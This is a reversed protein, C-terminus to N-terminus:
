LDFAPKPIFMIGATAYSPSYKGAEYDILAGDVLDLYQEGRKVAPIFAFSSGDASMPTTLLYRAENEIGAAKFHSEHYVIVEGNGDRFLEMNEYLLVQGNKDIVEEKRGEKVRYPIWSDPETSYPETSMTYRSAGGLWEFRVGENIRVYVFGQPELEILMYRLEDNENYLSYVELGTYESNEGLFHEEALKRVRAIHRDESNSCGTCVLGAFLTMVALMVALMKVCKKM